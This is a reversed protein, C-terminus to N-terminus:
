RGRLWGGRRMRSIRAFGAVTAYILFGVPDARLLAPLDAEAKGENPQLHPYLRIVEQVGADQRGRVRVLNRLGDVLPWRYSARVQVRESPKFNLRVFTDDSIIDPFAAWRSRGEANVAYIGFGPAGSRMFPVRQWFRGYLRTILSSSPTIEPTGTAYRAPAVALADGLEALLAPSVIVDADLYVRLRGIAVDDGANLAAIKDGETLDLVRLAWGRPEAMATFRRAIAVTDDTCGNAIVIVQVTHGAVPDSSLLAKLCPGIYRAENNAPILVSMVPIM